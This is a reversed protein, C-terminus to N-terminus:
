PPASRTLTTGDEFTYTVDISAAAPECQFSAQFPVDDYAEVCGEITVAETGVIASPIVSKFPDAADQITVQPKLYVFEDILYSEVGDADRYQLFIHRSGSATPNLTVAVDENAAIWRNTNPGAVDGSIRYELPEQEEFHDFYYSLTVAESDTWYVGGNVEIRENHYSPDLTVTLPKELCYNGAVDEIYVTLSKEGESPEVLVDIIDGTEFVVQSVATRVDGMVSYLLRGTDTAQLRISVRNNAVTESLLSANCDTPPTQKLLITAPVGDEGVNGFVNRFRTEVTKPGDGSTLTVPVAATDATIAQWYGGDELETKGSTVVDGGIWIASVSEARSTSILLNNTTIRTADDAFSAIPAEPVSTSYEWSLIEFVYPLGNVRDVKFDAFHVGETTYTLAITRTELPYWADDEVDMTADESHVAFVFRPDSGDPVEIELTNTGVGTFERALTYTFEATSESSSSAGGCACLALTAVTTAIIPFWRPIL